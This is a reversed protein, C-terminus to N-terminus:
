LYSYIDDGGGRPAKQGLVAGGESGGKIESWTRSSIQWLFFLWRYFSPVKKNKPKENVM